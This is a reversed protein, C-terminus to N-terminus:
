HHCSLMLMQFCHHKAWNLAMRNLHRKIAAFPRFIFNIAQSEFSNILLTKCFRKIKREDIENKTSNKFIQNYLSQSLMQIKMENQRYNAEEGQIENNSAKIEAGLSDQTQNHTDEHKIRSQLRRVDKKNANEIKEWGNDTKRYIKINSKRYYNRVSAICLNPFLRM